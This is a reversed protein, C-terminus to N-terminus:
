FVKEERYTASASAVDRQRKQMEELFFNNKKEM